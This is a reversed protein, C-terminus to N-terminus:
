TGLLYIRRGSVVFAGDVGRAVMWFRSIEILSRSQGASRTDQCLSRNNWGVVARREASSEPTEARRAVVIGPVCVKIKM